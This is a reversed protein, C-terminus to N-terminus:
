PSRCSGDIPGPPLTANKSPEATYRSPTRIASTPSRAGRPPVMTPSDKGAMSLAVVPIGRERLERVAKTIEGGM